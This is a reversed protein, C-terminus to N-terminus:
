LTYTKLEKQRSKYDSIYSGVLRWFSEQHHKYKIHALEHVIIYEIIDMPLKMMLYNLSIANKGSCSGWQRKAKRFSLKTPYLEMLNAYRDVITPLHYKARDRYFENVGMDIIDIDLERGCITFGEEKSFKISDEDSDKKVYNITYEKGLYYLKEASDGRLPKGRKQSIKYRSEEIWKAKKILVSEIERQTVKPSKVILQGSNDFSLYIYKLKPNVIHTYSPFIKM